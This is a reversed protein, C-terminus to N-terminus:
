GIRVAVRTGSPQNDAAYLDTIELRCKLMKKRNLIDLQQRVINLGEGTGGTELQQAKNRGIGNDEVSIVTFGHQPYIRIIIRGGGPKNSLGHRIANECFTQIVMCPAELQLDVDPAVQIDYSLRDGYRLKEFKLYLQVYDLEEQITRFMYDSNLLTM